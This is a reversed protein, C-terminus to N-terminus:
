EEAEGGYDLPGDARDDFFAAVKSVIGGASTTTETAGVTLNKECDLGPNLRELQEVTLRHAAALSDCTDERRITYTKGCPRARVSVMSSFCVFFIAVLVLTSRMRWM